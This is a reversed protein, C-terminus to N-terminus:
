ELNKQGIITPLFDNLVVWQYHWRVMQQIFNFDKNPCVDVMRNHFRLFMGQLQSIIVNEDNRPDGIIARRNGSSPNNRQLDKTNVDFDSGILQNGLIFKKGDAEFLYPQDDPDRGYINDLDFAPTRYDVLADPDNEKQLSSAPDFTIDHDIFQGLYTYGAHILGEEDDLDEEDTPPNELAASMANALIELPDIQNEDIPFQAKPLTRFMRGFRGEFSNSARASDLGRVFGHKKIHRTSM